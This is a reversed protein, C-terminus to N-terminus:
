VGKICKVIATELQPCAVIDANPSLYQEFAGGVYFLLRDFLILVDYLYIFLYILTLQLSYWLLALRSLKNPQVQAM